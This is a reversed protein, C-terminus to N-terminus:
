LRVAHRGLGRLEVPENSELLLDLRDLVEVDEELLDEGGRAGQAVRIRARDVGDLAVPQPEFKREVAGQLLRQRRSLLEDEVLEGDREVVTGDGAM